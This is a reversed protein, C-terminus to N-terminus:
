LKRCLTESTIGALYVGTTFDQGAAGHTPGV